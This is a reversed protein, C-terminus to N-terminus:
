TKLHVIGAFCYTVIFVNPTLPRKWFLVQCNLTLLVYVYTVQFQIEEFWHLIIYFSFM